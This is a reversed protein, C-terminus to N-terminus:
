SKAPAALATKANAIVDQWGGPTAQRFQRLSPYWPSDDRDRLWRWCPDFRNLLWTPRGLAGALHVVATDVALVLDLGTLLAATDDFSHLDATWDTMPLISTIQAQEEPSLDKQLSVFTIGPLDALPALYAPDLDRKMKSDAYAQNGRWVIGVRLGPLNALRERWYATKAPDGTLYPITAPITSLATDFVLPLSLLPCHYDFKPLSEGRVIIQDVSPLSRQLLGRLPKQIELIIRARQAAMAVYRCFQLTDGFGQEAHLLLTQEGLPQGDWRPQKFPRPPMTSQHWRAEYPQWGEQLRGTQLLTTALNYRAENSEPTHALAKVFCAEAEQVKGVGRLAVGLNTLPRAANAHREALTRLCTEAAHYQGSEILATGLNNMAEVHDGDLTLVAQFHTSAEPARGTKLLLTGLNYHGDILDPHRDILSRYRAEAEALQGTRYLADALNNEVHVNNPQLIAAKQFCPIAEAPRGLKALLNGLNYHGAFFAPDHRLATRYCLAAEELLGTDTLVLALEFRAQNDATNQRLATRYAAIAAQRQGLDRQVRALLLHHAASKPAIAVLRQAYALAADHDQQQWAIIGLALLSQAHAPQRAVIQKFDREAEPLRQSMLHALGSQVLGAIDQTQPM